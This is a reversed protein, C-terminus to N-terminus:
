KIHNTKKWNNFLEYFEDKKEAPIEITLRINENKTELIKKVEERTSIKPIKKLTQLNVKNEELELSIYEQTLKDKKSIEVAEKITIKGSDLDDFLNEILNNLSLYNQVMRGTIGYSNAIKDRTRGKEKRKKINTYKALISKTKESATLQRQVWNTDVIIEKATDEDIELRKRVISPIKLYKDDGTIEYLKRFAEVRNHGSLIMYNNEKEWVIIPNLLFNERISELLEYFKDEPLKKYFNWEEPAKDLLNINIYEIKEDIKRDEFRSKKKANLSSIDPMKSFRDKNIIIKKASLRM